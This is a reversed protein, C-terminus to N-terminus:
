AEPFLVAVLKDVAHRWTYNSRVFAPGAARASRAIDPEEIVRRMLEILHELDPEFLIGPEGYCDPVNVVRSRIRLAFNDRLFDDTPGGQTAIVPTGCAAAELAPLCFGEARYPAVYADALRYLDAVDGLPGANGIYHVHGYILGREEGSLQSIMDNVLSGSRYLGDLGKIILHTRPHTKVVAALAKLLVDLGKNGTAAGVTLFIFGDWGTEKRSKTRQVEDMPTFLTTDAGHPVVVVRTADAGSKLFGQRSFNSPTAIICRSNRHTRALPQRGLIFMAPVMGFEATGFVVTREAWPSGGLNFPAAIRYVADFREGAEPARLSAILRERDAAFLGTEATWGPDNYALDRHALEIDGRSLLELIHQENVLCYSHPVSRWGEILLRRKTTPM